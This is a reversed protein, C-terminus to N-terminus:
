GRRRRPATAIMAGVLVLVVLVPVAREGAAALGSNGATVATPVPVPTPAGPIPLRTPQVLWKLTGSEESGVLYLIMRSADELDVSNAPVLMRGAADRVSVQYGAAPVQAQAQASNALGDVLKETDFLVDIPPAQAGHRVLVDSQGPAVATVPDEYATIMPEGSSSLHALVSHDAGGIVTITASAFPESDAAKDPERLEVDHDGAPVDLPDTLRDPEFAPLALEGDVYVDVLQGRLGHVVVVRGTTPMQATAPAAAVAACVMVVALAGVVRVTTSRGRGALQM